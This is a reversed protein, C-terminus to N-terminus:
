CPYPSFHNFDPPVEDSCSVIAEVKVTRKGTVTVSTVRAAITIMHEIMMSIPRKPTLESKTAKFVSTNLAVPNVPHSIEEKAKQAAKHPLRIWSRAFVSAHSVLFLRQKSKLSSTINVRTQLVHSSLFNEHCLNGFCAEGDPM